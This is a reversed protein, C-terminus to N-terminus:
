SGSSLYAIAMYDVRQPIKFCIQVTVDKRWCFLCLLAWILDFPSVKAVSSQLGSSAAGFLRSEAGASFEGRRTKWTRWEGRGSVGRLREPCKCIGILLGFDARLASPCPASRPPHKTGHRHAAAVRPRLCGPSGRAWGRAAAQAPGASTAPCVANTVTALLLPVSSKKRRM